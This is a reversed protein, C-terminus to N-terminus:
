DYEYVVTYPFRPIATIYHKVRSDEFLSFDHAASEDQFKSDSFKDIVKGFEDYVIGKMSGIKISKNYFVVLHAADEGNANLVTIAQKVHTTVNDLDKVEMHTDYDRIVASAYSLLEKPIAAAEYNTQQASLSASCALLAIFLSIRRM